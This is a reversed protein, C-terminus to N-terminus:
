QRIHQQFGKIIQTCGNENEDDLSISGQIANLGWGYKIYNKLNLDLHQFQTSEGEKTDKVYSPISILRWNKDPRAAVTLAYVLPDMRVLQQILSYNMNRLWGRRADIGGEPYYHWNYMDFENEVMSVVDMNSTIYNLVDPINISGNTEFEAWALESAFNAFIKQSDIQFEFNKFQPEYALTHLHQRSTNIKAHKRFWDSYKLRIDDIM